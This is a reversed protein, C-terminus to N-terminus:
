MLVVAAFPIKTIKSIADIEKEHLIMKRNSNIYSFLVSKMVTPVHQDILPKMQNYVAQIQVAYDRILTTWRNEPSEDLSIEYIPVNSKKNETVTVGTKSQTNNSNNSKKNDSM